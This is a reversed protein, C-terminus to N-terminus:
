YTSPPSWRDAAAAGASELPEILGAAILRDLVGRAERLSLDCAELTPQLEALSAAGGAMDELLIGDGPRVGLGSSWEQKAQDLATRADAAQQAASMM